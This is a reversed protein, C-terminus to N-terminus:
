QCDHSGNWAPQSTTGSVTATNGCSSYQVVIGVTLRIRSIALWGLVIRGPVFRVFWCHLERLFFSRCVAHSQNMDIPNLPDPQKVDTRRFGPNTLAVMWALWNRPIHWDFRLNLIHIHCTLTPSDMTHERDTTEEGVTVTIYNWSDQRNCSYCYSSSSIGSVWSYSVVHCRTQRSKPRIPFGRSHLNGYRNSISEAYPPSACRCWLVVVTGHHLSHAVRHEIYGSTCNQVEYYLYVTCYTILVSSYLGIWCTYM